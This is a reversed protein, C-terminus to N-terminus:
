GTLGLSKDPPLKGAVPLKPVAAKPRVRLFDHAKKLVAATDRHNKVLRVADRYYFWGYGEHMESIFVDRKQTEALYFVVLKFIKAKGKFFTFREYGRFNRLIRLEKVEFGAEEKTERLAAELSTEKKEVEPRMDELRPTGEIHGKPFNWYGGGHYLLLFKPGKKDRRFVVIGASTERVAPKNNKNM